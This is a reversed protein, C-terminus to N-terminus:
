FYQTQIERYYFPIRIHQRKREFSLKDNHRKELDLYQDRNATAFRFCSIDIALCLYHTYHWGQGISINGIDADHSQAQSNCHPIKLM